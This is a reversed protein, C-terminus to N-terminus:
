LEAGGPFSVDKRPIYRGKHFYKFFTAALPHIVQEGGLDQRMNGEAVYTSADGGHVLVHYWPQDRGPQTMNSEYWQRSAGCQEDRSVVVGRYGYRQHEILQGIEFKFISALDGLGYYGNYLAARLNERGPMKLM